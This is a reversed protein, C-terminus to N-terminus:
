ILGHLILIGQAGLFQEESQDEKELMKRAKELAQQNGFREKLIDRKKLLM